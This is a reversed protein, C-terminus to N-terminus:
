ADQVRRVQKRLEDVLAEGIALSRRLAVATPRDGLKEVQRLLDRLAAQYGEEYALAERPTRRRLM